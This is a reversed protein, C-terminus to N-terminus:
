FLYMFVYTRVCVYLRVCACVEACNNADTVCKSDSEFGGIDNAVSQAPIGYQAEFTALDAESYYQFVFSCVRVCM